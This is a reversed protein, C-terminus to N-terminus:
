ANNKAINLENCDEKLKYTLTGNNLLQQLDQIDVSLFSILMDVSDTSIKKYDAKFEAMSDQEYGNIDQQILNLLHSYVRIGNVIEYIEDVNKLEQNTM